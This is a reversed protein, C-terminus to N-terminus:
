CVVWCRCVMSLAQIATAHLCRRFSRVKKCEEWDMNNPNPVQNGAKTQALLSATAKSQPRFNYRRVFEYVNRIFGM